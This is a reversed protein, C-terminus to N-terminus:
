GIFSLNVQFLTEIHRVSRKKFVLLIIHDGAAFIFDSHALHVREGRVVAAILCSPPLEVETLRRGIVQSTHEDGQIILQIAEAYM